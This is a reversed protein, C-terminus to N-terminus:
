CEDGIGVCKGCWKCGRSYLRCTEEDGNEACNYGCLIHPDIECENEEGPMNCHLYGRMYGYYQCTRGQTDQSGDGLFECEEDGELIGNGCVAEEREERERGEPPAQEMSDLSKPNGQKCLECAQGCGERDGSLDWGNRTCAGECFGCQASASTLLATQCQAAAVRCENLNGVALSSSPASTLFMIVIAALGLAVALIIMLELSSQGKM